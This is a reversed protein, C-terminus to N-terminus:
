IYNILFFFFSWIVVYLIRYFYSYNIFVSLSPIIFFCMIMMYDSLINLRLIKDNYDSHYYKKLLSFVILFYLVVLVSLFILYFWKWFKDSVINKIKGM